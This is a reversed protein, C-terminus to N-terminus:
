PNGNDGGNRAIAALAKPIDTVDAARRELGLKDLRMMLGDAVQRRQLIVPYVSKARRSVISDMQLIYADLTLLIFYDVAAAEILGRRATTLVDKGGQDATLDAVFQRVLKGNHTRADIARTGLKRLHQKIRSTGHTLPRTM